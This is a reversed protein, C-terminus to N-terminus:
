VKKRLAIRTVDIIKDILLRQLVYRQPFSNRPASLTPHVTKFPDYLIAFLYQTRLCVVCLVEKGKGCVSQGRRQFSDNKENIVSTTTRFSYDAKALGGRFGIVTQRVEVGGEGGRWLGLKM